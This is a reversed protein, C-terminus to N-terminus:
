NGMAQGLQGDTLWRPERQQPRGGNLIKNRVVGIKGFGPGGIGTLKSGASALTNSDSDEESEVEIDVTADHDFWAGFQDSADQLADRRSQGLTLDEFGIGQSGIADEFIFNFEIAGIAVRGSVLWVATLTLFMQSPRM